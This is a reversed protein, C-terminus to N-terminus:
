ILPWAAYWFAAFGAVANIVPYYWYQEEIDGHSAAIMSLLPYVWGVALWPSIYTLIGAFGTWLATCMHISRHSGLLVATTIVEADTDAEIDPIASYLHMAMVWLTAAIVVWHNISTGGALVYGYLGPMIYLVNSVSDAFPTAKFRFPPASYAYSYVYFFTLFATAEVPIFLSAIVGVGAIAFLAQRLGPREDTDLLHEADGKKDNYQDTDDDFYDNLGYLFLNAPFTFFLLSCWFVVTLFASISPAGAGYGVLFPGALYLWFWPRSISVYAPKM